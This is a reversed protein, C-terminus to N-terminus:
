WARQPMESGLTLCGLDNEIGQLISSENFSTLGLGANGEKGM